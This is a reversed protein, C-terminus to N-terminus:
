SNSEMRKLLAEFRPDDRVNDLDSDQRWWDAQTNGADVSKELARLSEEAEGAVAYFCAINYLLMSDDTGSNLVGAAREFAEDRQGLELLAFATLLRSHLDDPNLELHREEAALMRGNAELMKSNQGLSRYLQPLMGLTNRDEPDIEVAKEWLEGARQLDGETYVLGAFNRYTQSREPDLRIATEYMSEAGKLDGTIELYAARTTYSEAKNPALALAKASARDAGELNESNAGALQFLNYHAMTLGSYADAYNPDAEIAQEYMQVAFRQNETGGNKTYDEGRLFFDYAETNDTGVPGTSGLISEPALTLQLAEAISAAIEDQVAFVDELTRNYTESWLEFGNSVQVLQAAIRLQDGSKRVSGELVTAVGLREGVEEISLGKDKLAFIATRSPVKLGEIAGLAQLLEETMGDTFYEQDREPSLDAFPLVAVSPTTDAAATAASTRKAIGTEAEPAKSDSAGRGFWWAALVVLILAAAALGIWM